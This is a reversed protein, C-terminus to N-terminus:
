RQMRKRRYSPHKTMTQPIHLVTIMKGRAFVFCHDGYLRIEKTENWANHCAIWRKLSGNVDDGCVGLEYVRQAMRQVSRKNLGCREKMRKRAHKTVTISNKSM